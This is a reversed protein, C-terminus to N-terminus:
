RRGARPRSRLRSKSPQRTTRPLERRAEPGCRVLGCPRIRATSDRSQRMRAGLAAGITPDDSARHAGGAMDSATAPTKTPGVPVRCSWTTARVVRPPLGGNPAASHACTGTAALVPAGPPEWRQPFAAPSTLGLGGSSRRPWPARLYLPHGGPGSADITARQNRHPSAGTRTPRRPWPTPSGAVKRAATREERSLRGQAAHAHAARPVSLSYM